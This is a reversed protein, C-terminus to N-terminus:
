GDIAKYVHAVLCILNDNEVPHHGYVGGRLKIRMKQANKYDLTVKWIFVFNLIWNWFEIKIQKKEFM